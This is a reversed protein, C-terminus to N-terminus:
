QLPPKTSRFLEAVTKARPVAITTKEVLEGVPVRKIKVGRKDLEKVVAKGIRWIKLWNM